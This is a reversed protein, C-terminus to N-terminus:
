SEPETVLPSGTLRDVELRLRRSGANFELRLGSCEGNPYFTFAPPGYVAADWDELHWEIGNPLPYSKEGAYYRGRNTQGADGPV